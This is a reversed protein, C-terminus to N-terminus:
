KGLFWKIILLLIGLPLSLVIIGVTLLGGFDMFDDIMGSIDIKDREAM